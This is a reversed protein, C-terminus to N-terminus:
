DTVRDPNRAARELIQDSLAAAADFSVQQYLREARAFAPDDLGPPPHTERPAVNGQLARALEAVVRDVRAAAAAHHRSPLAFGYVMTEAARAGGGFLCM